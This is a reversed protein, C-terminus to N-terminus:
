CCYAVRRIVPKNKRISLVCLIILNLHAIEFDPARELFSDTTSGQIWDITIMDTDLQLQLMNMHNRELLFSLIFNLLRYRIASVMICLFQCSKIPPTLFNTFLLRISLYKNNKTWYPIKMQPKAKLCSTSEKQRQCGLLRNQHKLIHCNFM